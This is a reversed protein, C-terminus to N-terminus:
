PHPRSYPYPVPFPYAPLGGWPSVSMGPPRVGEMRNLTPRRIPRGGSSLGPTHFRVPPRPSLDIGGTGVIKAEERRIASALKEMEDAGRERDLFVDRVTALRGPSVFGWRDVEVHHVWDDVAQTYQGKRVDYVQHKWAGSRTFWFVVKYDPSPPAAARPPGAPVAPRVEQSRAASVMLAAGLAVAISLNRIM